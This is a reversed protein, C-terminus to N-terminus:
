LWFVEEDQQLTQQIASKVAEEVFIRRRNDVIIVSIKYPM